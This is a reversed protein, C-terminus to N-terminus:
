LCGIEHSPHMAPIYLVYVQRVSKYELVSARPKPKEKESESPKGDPAKDNGNSPVEIKEEKSGVSPPTGEGPVEMSESESESSHVSGEGRDLMIRRARHAEIRLLEIAIKNQPPSFDTM